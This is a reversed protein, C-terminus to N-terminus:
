YNCVGFTSQMNEIAKTNVQPIALTVRNTLQIVLMYNFSISLSFIQKEGELCCM